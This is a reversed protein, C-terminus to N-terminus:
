SGHKTNERVWTEMLECFNTDGRPTLPAPGEIFDQLLTPFAGYPPEDVLMETLREFVPESFSWAMRAQICQSERFRIEFTWARWSNDPNEFIGDPDPMYPRRTWYASPHPFYAALFRAFADRWASLELLSERTFQSLTTPSHDPLSARIHGFALGGTDFPTASGSHNSESGPAFAFAIDGYNRCARGAYFYLCHGLDLMNEADLTRSPLYASSETTPLLEQAPELVIKFFSGASTVHLLPITKATTEAAPLNATYRSQWASDSRIRANLLTLAPM